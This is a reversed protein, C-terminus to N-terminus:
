FLNLLDALCAQFKYDFIKIAAEITTREEKCRYTYRLNKRYVRVSPIVFVFMIFGAVFLPLYIKLLSQM